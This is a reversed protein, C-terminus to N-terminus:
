LTTEYDLVNPLTGDTKMDDIEYAEKDTLINEDLWKGVENLEESQSWKVKIGKPNDQLDTGVKVERWSFEVVENGDSLQYWVNIGSYRYDGVGMKMILAYPKGKFMFPIPKRGSQWTAVRYRKM